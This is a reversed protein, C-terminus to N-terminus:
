YQVYAWHHHDTLIWFADCMWSNLISSENFEHLIGIDVYWTPIGSARLRKNFKIWWPQVSELSFLNSHLCNSALAGTYSNPDSDRQCHIFTYLAASKMFFICTLYKDKTMAFQFQASFQTTISISIRKQSKKGKPDSKSKMSQAFLKLKYYRFIRNSRMATGNGRPFLIQTQKEFSQINFLVWKNNLM